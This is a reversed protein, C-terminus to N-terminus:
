CHDKEDLPVIFFILYYVLVKMIDNVQDHEGGMIRFGLIGEQRQLTIILRQLQGSQYFYCIEYFNHECCNLLKTM